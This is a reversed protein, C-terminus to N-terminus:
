LFDRLLKSSTRVGKIAAKKQRIVEQYKARMANMHAGVANVNPYANPMDAATPAVKQSYTSTSVLTYNLATNQAANAAYSQMAFTLQYDQIFGSGFTVKAQEWVQYPYFYFGCYDDDNDWYNGAIMQPNFVTAYMDLPLPRLCVETYKLQVGDSILAGIFCGQYLGDFYHTFNALWWNNYSSDCLAGYPSGTPTACQLLLPSMQATATLMVNSSLCDQVRQTLTDGAGCTYWSRPNNSNPCLLHEDAESIYQLFYPLSHSGRNRKDGFESFAYVGDRWSNRVILGGKYGDKSVFSDSYGVLLVAHGAESDMQHHSTFEGEM